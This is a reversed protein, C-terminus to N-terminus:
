GETVKAAARRAFTGPSSGTVVTVGKAAIPVLLMLGGIVLAIVLLLNVGFLTATDRSLLCVGGPLPLLCEPALPESTEQRPLKLGTRVAKDIADRGAKTAPNAIEGSPGIVGGTPLAGRWDTGAPPLVPVGGREGEVVNLIVRGPYPERYIM